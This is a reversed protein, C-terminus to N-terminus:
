NGDIMEEFFRFQSGLPGEERGSLSTDGSLLYAQMFEVDLGNFEIPGVYMMHHKNKEITMHMFPDKLNRAIVLDPDVADLIKNMPTEDLFHFVVSRQEDKFIEDRIDEIMLHCDFRKRFVIHLDKYITGWTFLLRFFPSKPSHTLISVYDENFYDNIIEKTLHPVYQSLFDEPESIERKFYEEIQIPQIPDQDICFLLAAGLTTFQVCDDWVVLCKPKPNDHTGIRARLDAITVDNGEADKGVITTAPVSDINTHYEVSNLM